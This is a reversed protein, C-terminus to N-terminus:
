QVVKPMESVSIAHEFASIIKRAEAPTWMKIFQVPQEHVKANITWFIMGEDTLGIIDRIPEGGNDSM